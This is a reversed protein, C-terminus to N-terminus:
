LGASSLACSPCPNTIREKSLEAIVGVTTGARAGAGPPPFAGGLQEPIESPSRPMPPRSLANSAAKAVAPLPGLPPAGMM